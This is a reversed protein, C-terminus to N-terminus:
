MSNIRRIREEVGIWETENGHKQVMTQKVLALWAKCHLTRAKVSVNYFLFMLFFLGLAKMQLLNTLVKHTSQAKNGHGCDSVSSGPEASLQQKNHDLLSMWKLFTPESLQPPSLRCSCGKVVESVRNSSIILGATIQCWRLMCSFVVFCVFFGGICQSWKSGIAKGPISFFDLSFHPLPADAGEQAKSRRQPPSISHGRLAGSEAEELGNTCLQSM